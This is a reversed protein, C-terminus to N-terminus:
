GAKYVWAGIIPYQIACDIIIILYAFAACIFYVCETQMFREYVNFWHSVKSNYQLIHVYMTWVCMGKTITFYIAAADPVTDAYTTAPTVEAKDSPM